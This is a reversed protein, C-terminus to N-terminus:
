RPEDTGLRGGEIGAVEPRVKLLYYAAVVVGPLCFLVGLGTAAVWATRNREAYAFAWEPRRAADLLAWVNIALPVAAM